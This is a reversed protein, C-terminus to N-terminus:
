PLGHRTRARTNAPKRHLREDGAHSIVAPEAHADTAQNRQDHHQEDHDGRNTTIPTNAITDLPALVAFYPDLQRRHCEALFCRDALRGLRYARLERNEYAQDATNM